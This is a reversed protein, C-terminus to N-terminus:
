KVVNHEIIRGSIPCFSFTAAWYVAYIEQKEKMNGHNPMLEQWKLVCLDLSSSKCLRSLRTLTSTQTGKCSLRECFVNANQHMMFDQRQSKRKLPQTNCGFASLVISNNNWYMESFIKWFYHKLDYYVKSLLLQVNIYRPKNFPNTLVDEWHVHKFASNNNTFYYM